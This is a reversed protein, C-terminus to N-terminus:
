LLFFYFIASFFDISNKKVSLLETAFGTTYITAAPDHQQQKNSSTLSVNMQNMHLTINYVAKRVVVICM